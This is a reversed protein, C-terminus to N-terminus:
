RGKIESEIIRARQRARFEDDPFKGGAVALFQRYAALAPKNRHLSDLSIARFYLDGPTEDGLAKLRDLAALGEPFNKTIVFAAALERWVVISDPRIKAAAMFEQAAEAYKHADRLQRGRDMHNDFPAEQQRRASELRAAELRQQERKMEEIQLVAQDYLTKPRAEGPKAEMAEKLVPMAEAPMKDRLLIIGLNIDAEYLGPKLELTKRLEPIAEADKQQMSLALALDFHALYDKPDADVAQRFLSEAVAPQNEDLAKTGDALFDRPPAFLLATLLFIM